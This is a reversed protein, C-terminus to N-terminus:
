MRVVLYPGKCFVKTAEATLGVEALKAPFIESVKSGITEAVKEDSVNKAAVAGLKSAIKDRFFGTGLKNQVRIFTFSCIILLFKRYSLFIRYIHLLILVFIVPFVFLDHAVNHM